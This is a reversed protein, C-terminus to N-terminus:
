LYRGFFRESLNAAIIGAGLVWIMWTQVDIRDAATLGMLCAAALYVPASVISHLRRVRVANVVSFVTWMLLVALGIWGRGTHISLGMVVAALTVLTAAWFVPGGILDRKVDTAM